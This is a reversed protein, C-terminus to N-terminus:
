GLHINACTDLVCDVFRDVLYAYVVFDDKFLNLIVKNEEIVFLTSNYEKTSLFIHM